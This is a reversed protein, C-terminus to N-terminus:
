PEDGEFAPIFYTGTAALSKQAEETSCRGAVVAKLLLFLQRTDIVLGGEQAFLEVDEPNSELPIPREDPAKDFMANVVYWQADPGRGNKHEYIAVAKALQRLDNMKAGGKAYGKVEVLAVWGPQAELTVQLDERKATKNADAVADSDSVTFGIATLAESVAAVLDDGQSNLLRRERTDATRTVAASADILGLRDRERQQLQRETEVDFAAINAEAELEAQTKWRESLSQGASPFDDPYQARWHDLAARLWLHQSTVAPSLMWWQSGTENTLIGALARGETEHVLSQFQDHAAPPVFIVSYEGGAPVNKLLQQNVLTELGLARAESGVTFRAAMDGSNISLYDGNYTTGVYRQVYGSYHDSIFQLIKLRKDPREDPTGVCVLLSYDRQRVESLSNVYTVTAGLSDLEKRLTTGDEVNMAVIWPLPRELLASGPVNDPKPREPVLEYAHTM